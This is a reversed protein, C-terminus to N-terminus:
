DAMPRAQQGADAVTRTKMQHSGSATPAVFNSPGGSAYLAGAGAGAVLLGKRIQRQNPAMPKSHVAM